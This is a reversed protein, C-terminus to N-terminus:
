IAFSNQGSRNWRCVTNVNVKVLLFYKKVYKKSM